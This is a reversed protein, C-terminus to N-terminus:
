VASLVPHRFFVVRTKIYGYPLTFNVEVNSKKAESDRVSKISSDSLKDLNEPDKANKILQSSM